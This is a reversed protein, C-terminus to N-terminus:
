LFMLTGVFCLCVGFIVSKSPRERFLIIGVLTSFVMSGGTIFPYLLSADLHAAGSLQLAYSLGGIVASAIILPILCLAQKKEKSTISAYKEKKRFILFAMGAFVFKCLGSWMVFETANVTVFTTEIQHLKSIVSVFGNLFFVAICLPIVRLNSKKGNLNSLVVAALILTIGATRLWSFPEGLFLLGWVYPVLMGGTMLFMTYLAMSEAKLIRFGVLTYSIGLLTIGAAMILSYRSFHFSFGGMAWFVLATFLGLLANFRFGAALSTGAKRQYLKNLAFDAALLLAALLLLLYDKMFLREEYTKKYQIM